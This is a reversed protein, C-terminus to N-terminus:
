ALRIKKKKSASVSLLFFQGSILLDLMAVVTCAPERYLLQVDIYYNLMYPKGVCVNPSTEICTYIMAFIM